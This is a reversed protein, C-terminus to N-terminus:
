MFGPFFLVQSTGTKKKLSAALSASMECIPPYTPPRPPFWPCSCLFEPALLRFSPIKTGGQSIEASVVKPAGFNLRRISHSTIANLCDCMGGFM